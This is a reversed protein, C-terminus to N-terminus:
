RGVPRPWVGLRGTSQLGIFLGVINEETLPFGNVTLPSRVFMPGLEFFPFCLGLCVGPRILLDTHLTALSLQPTLSAPSATTITVMEPPLHFWLDLNLFVCELRGNIGFPLTQVIATMWCSM